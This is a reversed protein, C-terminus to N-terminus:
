IKFFGSSNLFDAGDLIKKWVETKKKNKKKTHTHTNIDKSSSGETISVSQM